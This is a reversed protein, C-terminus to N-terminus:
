KKREQKSSNAEVGRRSSWSGNVDTFFSLPDLEPQMMLFRAAQEEASETYIVGASYRRKAERDVQQAPMKQHCWGWAFGGM